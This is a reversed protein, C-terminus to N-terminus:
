FVDLKEDSPVSLGAADFVEDIINRCVQKVMSDKKLDMAEGRWKAINTTFEKERLKPWHLKRDQLGVSQFEIIYPGSFSLKEEMFEAYDPLACLISQVWWKFQFCAGISSPTTHMANTVSWLEGNRLVQVFAGLRKAVAAENDFTYRVAGFSNTVIEPLYSSNALVPLTSKQLGLRLDDRRFSQSQAACPFLRLSCYSETYFTFSREAGRQQGKSKALEAGKSFFLGTENDLEVPTFEPASITVEQSVYDKLARELTNALKKREDKIKASDAGEELDFTIPRSKHQLDFPLHEDLDRCYHKNVVMLFKLQDLVGMAYGLEIAVNSNMVGKKYSKGDEDVRKISLVPTVDAVVVAANRIKEFITAALDPHGPVGKRDHDLHLADLPERESPEVISEASIKLAKIADKLADRVFYKNTREDRDSQWSWFIKM